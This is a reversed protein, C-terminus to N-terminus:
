EQIELPFLSGRLPLVSLMSVLRDSGCEGVALSVLM